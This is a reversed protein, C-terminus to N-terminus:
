FFWASRENRNRPKASRLLAEFRDSFFDFGPQESPEARRLLLAARLDPITSYPILEVLMWEERVLVGQMTPASEYSYVKINKNKLRDWENLANQTQRIKDDGENLHKAFGRIEDATTPNWTLVDLETEPNLHTKLNKFSRSSMITLYLVKRGSGLAAEYYKRRVDPTSRHLMCLPIRSSGKPARPMRVAACDEDYMLDRWEDMGLVQGIRTITEISIGPSRTAHTITAQVVGVREALEKKTMNNNAALHEALVDTRIRYPM